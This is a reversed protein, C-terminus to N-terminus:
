TPAPRQRGRWRAQHVHWLNHIDIWCAAGFTLPLKGRAYSFLLQFLQVLLLPLLFPLIALVGLEVRLRLEGLEGAGARATHVHWRRPQPGHLFRRRLVLRTRLVLPERPIGQALGDGTDDVSDVDRVDLVDDRLKELFVKNATAAQESPTDHLGLGGTQRESGDKSRKDGDDVRLQGLNPLQEQGPQDALETTCELAIVLYANCVKATPM